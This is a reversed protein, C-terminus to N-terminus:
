KEISKTSSTYFCHGFWEVMYYRIIEGYKTCLSSCLVKIVDVHREQILSTTLPTAPTAAAMGFNQRVFPLIKYNWM